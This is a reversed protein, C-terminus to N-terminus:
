TQMNDSILSIQKMNSIFRIGTVRWVIQHKTSITETIIKLLLLAVRLLFGDTTQM